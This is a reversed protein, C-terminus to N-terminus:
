KKRVFIAVILTTIIGMIPAFIVSQLMYSKMNFFTEAAERTTKGESVAYNIMNEFYKPTIVVLTLYQTLPTLLTVVITIFIGSMLGQGYNMRGNYFNKKKDILALVYILIAPIAVFNTVIYHYKINEDHFGAVKEMAMWALMMVTFILGWKIEIKLRKM